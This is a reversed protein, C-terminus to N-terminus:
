QMINNNTILDMKHLFFFTVKKKLMAKIICSILSNIINCLVIELETYKMTMKLPLM